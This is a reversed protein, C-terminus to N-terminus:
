YETEVTNNKIREIVYYGEEVYREQEKLRRGNTFEVEFQYTGEGTNKFTFIHKEGIQLSNIIENNIYISKIPQNSENIFKVRVSDTPVCFLPIYIFGVAKNVALFCVLSILLIIIIKSSRKM